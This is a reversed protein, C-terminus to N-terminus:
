HHHHHHHPSFSSLVAANELGFPLLIYRDTHHEFDIFSWPRRFTEELVDAKHNAEILNFLTNTLVLKLENKGDHLNDTIEVMFPEWFLSGVFKENLFVEVSAARVSNLKLFYRRKPDKKMEFTKRLTFSGVYFPYGSRTIDKHDPTKPADIVYKTEDVNVLSFKGVLYITEVETPRHNEPNKVREHCGPGTINNSKKGELVVINKGVRVFETIDMKGFNVDLFCEEETFTCGKKKFVAEHGNVTIRDLNEACEVVLFLKEPKERIEFSYVVGFPTGEPLRYFEYWIKSVYEDRFVKGDAEFMDVRDVPLVNFGNMETEFESFAMELEFERKLVMGTSIVSRRQSPIEEDTVWILLSSAPHMTFERESFEVVAFDFIDIAYIHRKEEKLNLQCHVERNIDTNALFIIYSGNELLRKQAIVSKANKGTKKDIVEVAAVDRLSDILGQLDEFVRARKLFEPKEKRGEVREPFFNGDKLVLIKGGNKSFENLLDVTSRRLNLLPPVLVIDYECNGVVLKEGSVRGHKSLITEDGFHFDIKNSVLEKVTRDFSENLKDIEDVFKSYVCWASTIPHIMLVKVERKGQTMLYNLRALYDSFRKENKWWPQQYFLNPPYDRKREGRMSYLSLHPNIYTIGLVAQWDAIWKRHLFSVHQGTTGFTECLVWKKRLQEAVSSVQKITIVQELHRALKDVGPIQMYEYHPMAAGIWEVQGRLTDEAMYHGTMSIGNEECWKAYPITFNEIFLETAVDFFDYRVKMYDKTNFFLEEFHERIDYGKRKLFEEPFRDTWPLTPIEPYHVRLYTPEDTFIGPISSGFFEGCVKRYKEHTSRIFAETVKKSLLDVYCTGNFWPDGLKMTRKVVFLEENGREIRKLIEDGPEIQEKKLLVLFRHRYEDSELPVIGGAFGSPWKDEDYLWALMGLKRAHEACRKVLAMWEDSLYETVLGVRSHMFFGGYGKECMEDIQRLLEEECLKDNWSWFPAPRYWVGPNELDKLNM